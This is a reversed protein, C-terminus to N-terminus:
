NTNLLKMINNYINSNNTKKKIIKIQKFKNIKYSIRDIELYEDINYELKSKEKIIKDRKIYPKYDNIFNDIYTLLKNDINPQNFDIYLNNNVEIYKVNNSKFILFLINLIENSNINSIKNILNQKQLNNM